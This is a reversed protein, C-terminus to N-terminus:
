DPGGLSGEDSLSEQTDDGDFGQTNIHITHYIVQLTQRVEDREINQRIVHTMLFCLINIVDGVSNCQRLATIESLCVGIEEACDRLEDSMERMQHDM